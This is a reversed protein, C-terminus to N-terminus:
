EEIINLLKNNFLKVGKQNLHHSDYFHVSDKLDMIENFNYYKGHSIMLSDYYKTNTYSSYLNKTIPAYVLLLKINKKKIINLIQEFSKLQNKKLVIKNNEISQPIYYKMQKEVFGNEVYLDKGKQKPEVFKYNLHFLDRITGYLLTNYTKIKNINLAMQYSYLDNKDNAIIDMSSEVGDSSLTSPFVEYIILEPKINDLYRNLLTLTQIPTQASSGLNFTNLGHKKFIRTDFGRYTHSSGLFLIDLNNVNKIENLRTYMHGYSGIKYNINPKLRGLTYSRGWIFLACLYFTSMFIIFLFINCIFKKM